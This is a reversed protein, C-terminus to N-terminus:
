TTTSETSEGPDPHDDPVAPAAAAPETAPDPGATTTPAARALAVTAAAQEAEKKSKGGGSGSGLHGVAVVATFRKDHDPGHESLEYTPVLDHRAALEQLQSKADGVGIGAIVGDIWPGMLTSIVREAGEVGGDLFVAGLVAEFADALISPKSAGGTSIEGRGLLLHPGLDISVAVEALTRSNVLAARRQALQGEPLSPLERFLRETIVLGLVSDGLFELRENSEPAGNEACWSRHRLSRELLEPAEFDHGVAAMLRSLPRSDLAGSM